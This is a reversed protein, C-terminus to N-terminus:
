ESQGNEQITHTQMTDEAMRLQSLLVSLRPLKEDTDDDSPYKPGQRVIVFEDNWLGYGYEDVIAEDAGYSLLLSAIEFHQHLLAEILPPAGTNDRKNIDCGAQLLMNAAMFNGVQAAIHLPTKGQDNTSYRLEETGTVILRHLTQDNGFLIAYHLINNGGQEPAVPIIDGCTSLLLDLGEEFDMSVALSIPTQKVIPNFCGNGILAIMSGDHAPSETGNEKISTSTTASLSTPDVKTLRLKTIANPDAGNELLPRMSPCIKIKFASLFLLNGKGIPSTQILAM